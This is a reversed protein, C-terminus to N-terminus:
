NIFNKLSLHAIIHRSLLLSLFLRFMSFRMKVFKKSLATFNLLTIQMKMFTSFQM